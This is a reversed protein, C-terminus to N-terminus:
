KIPEFEKWFGKAEIHINFAINTSTANPRLIYSTPTRIASGEKFIEIGCTGSSSPTGDVVMNIFPPAIFLGSPYNEFFTPYGEQLNGWAGWSTIVHRKIGWCEAIGSVMKRYTWIGSTGVEIPYDAVNEAYDSLNELVDFMRMM